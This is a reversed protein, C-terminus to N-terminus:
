QWNIVYLKDRLATLLEELATESFKFSDQREDLFAQAHRQVYELMTERSGILSYNDGEPSSVHVKYEPAPGAVQRLIKVCIQWNRWRIGRLPKPIGVDLELCVSQLLDMHLAPEQKLLNRSQWGLGCSVNPEGPHWYWDDQYYADLTLTTNGLLLELSEKRIQSNVRTLVPLPNQFEYKYEELVYSYVMKRLEAPLAMFPFPQEAHHKDQQVLTSVIVDRIDGFGRDKFLEILTNTSLRAYIAAGNPRSEPPLKEDRSHEREIWLRSFPM